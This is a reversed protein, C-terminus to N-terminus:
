GFSTRVILERGYVSRQKNRYESMIPSPTPPLTSSTSSLSEPVSYQLVRSPTSVPSPPYRSPSTVSLSALSSSAGLPMGNTSASFPRQKQPTSQTAFTLLNHRLHAHHRVKPTLDKFPRKVSPPPSKFPMQKRASEPPPPPAQRPFKIAYFGQLLNVAFITAALTETVICFNRLFSTFTLVLDVRISM